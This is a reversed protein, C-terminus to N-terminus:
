EFITSSSGYSERFQLMKRELMMRHAAVYEALEPHKVVVSELDFYHIPDAELSYYIDNNIKKITIGGNEMIYIDKKEKM